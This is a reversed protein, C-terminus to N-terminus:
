GHRHDRIVRGDPGVTERVVTSGVPPPEVPHVPGVPGAGSEWPLPFSAGRLEGMTIYRARDIVSGAIRLLRFGQFDPAPPVKNIKVTARTNTCPGLAATQVVIPAHAKWWAPADTASELPAPYPPVRLESLDPWITARHDSIKVVSGAAPAGETTRVLYRKHNETRWWDGEVLRTPYYMDPNGLYHDTFAELRGGQADWSLRYEIRLHGHGCCVLTAPRSAGVGALLKALEEQEGVAIGNDLLDEIPGTHFHPTGTRPWGPRKDEPHPLPAPGPAIFEAPVNRALYGTIQVADNSPHVSERFCNPLESGSPNLPPAHMGVIVLGNTGAEDLASRLMQLDAATAGVSDPQGKVFHEESESGFGLKTLLTESLTDTIGADWRTDIMAIRHAGLRVMYSREPNIRRFYYNTGGKMTPDVRVAKAAADPRMRPALYTKGDMTLGMLRLAEPDITNLGYHNWMVDAFSSVLDVIDAQTLVGLGPVESLVFSIGDSIAKLLDGVIPIAGLADGTTVKLDWGLPYPNERYDHNGLSTFMPVRLAEGQPSEADRSHAQGQVLAEFFGFNGPGAPHDDAERAYDVLDGTAIIVDLLGAAHLHNAYRIFDRFADNWNNLRAIDEEPVGTARLKTRYEEIRRSVHLDTIHALGFNEWDNRAYLCHPAITRPPLGPTRFALSYLQRRELRAAGAGFVSETRVRSAASSERALVVPGGGSSGLTFGLWRKGGRSVLSPAPVLDLVANGGVATLSYRRQTLAVALGPHLDLASTAGEFRLWELSGPAAPDVLAPRGLTPPVLEGVLVDSSGEAQWLVGREFWAARGGEVRAVDDLPHGLPGLVGGEALWADYLRGFLRVCATGSVDAIVGWEFTVCAFRGDDTRVIDTKPFGLEREGTAPNVDHGGAGLYRQLLRGHLEHAGTSHHWYIRGGEYIQFRGGYGADQEDGQAAGLDLGKQRLEKWHATIASTAM